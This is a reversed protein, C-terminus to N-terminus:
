AAPRLLMELGRRLAPVDVTLAVLIPSLLPGPERLIGLALHEVGIQRSGLRVAERLSLELCMKADARFPLHGSRRRARDLSARALRRRWARRVVEVDLGSGAVADSAHEDLTDSSLGHQALLSTLPRGDRTLALLLHVSSIQPGRLRRCEEQAAAVVQRAEPTFREFM